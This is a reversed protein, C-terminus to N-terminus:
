HMWRSKKEGQPARQEGRRDNGEAQGCGGRAREQYETVAEGGGISQGGLLAPDVQDAIAGTIPPNM